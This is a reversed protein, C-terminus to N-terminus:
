EKDMGPVNNQEKMSKRIWSPINISRILDLVSTVSVVDIAVIVDALTSATPYIAKYVAIRCFVVVNYIMKHHLNWGNKNKIETANTLDLVDWGM